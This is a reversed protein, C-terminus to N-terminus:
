ETMVFDGCHVTLTKKGEHSVWKKRLCSALLPLQLHQSLGTPMARPWSFNVNGILGESRAM